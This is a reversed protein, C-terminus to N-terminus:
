LVPSVSKPDRTHLIVRAELNELDIPKQIVESFGAEKFDNDNLLDPTLCGTILLIKVQSNYKRIEKALEMGNLKNMILDVLVM